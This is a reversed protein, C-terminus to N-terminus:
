HEGKNNAGEKISARTLPAMKFEGKKLPARKLPYM